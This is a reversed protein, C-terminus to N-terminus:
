REQKLIEVMAALEDFTAPTYCKGDVRMFAAFDKGRNRRAQELEKIVATPALLQWTEINLAKAIRELTTFSPRALSQSLSSQTIGMKAAVSTITEGHERITNLIDM